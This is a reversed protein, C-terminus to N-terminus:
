ARPEQAVAFPASAHQLSYFCSVLDFVDPRFIAGLQGFDARLLDLKARARALKLSEPSIDVCCLFSARRGQLWRAAQCDSGSGVDLVLPMGPAHTLAAELFGVDEEKSEIRGSFATSAEPEPM